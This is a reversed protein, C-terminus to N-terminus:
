DKLFHQKKIYKMVKSSLNLSSLVEEAAQIFEPEMANKAKVNEIVDQLYNSM